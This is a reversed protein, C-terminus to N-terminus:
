RTRETPKISVESMTDAYQADIHRLIASVQRELKLEKGEQFDLGPTDIVSLM